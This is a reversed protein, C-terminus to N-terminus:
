QVHSIPLSVDAANPNALMDSVVIGLISGSISWGSVSLNGSSPVISEIAESAADPCTSSM